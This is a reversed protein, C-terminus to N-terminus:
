ELRKFMLESVNVGVAPTSNVALTLLQGDDWQVKPQCCDADVQFSAHLKRLLGKPFEFRIEYRFGAEFVCDRELRFISGDPNCKCLFFDPRAAKVVRLCSPRVNACAAASLESLEFRLGVFCVRKDSTVCIRDFETQLRRGCVLDAIQMKLELSFSLRTRLVPHLPGLQAPMKSWDKQVICNLLQFKEDGSLVLGLDGLCLDAFQKADLQNFRISKLCAAVIPQLQSPDQGDAQLQARGWKLLAATVEAESADLQDMQLVEQVVTEPVSLWAKCSLAESSKKAILQFTLNWIM